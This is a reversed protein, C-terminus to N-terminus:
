LMVFPSSFAGCRESRCARPSVRVSISRGRMPTTLAALSTTGPCMCRSRMASATLAPTRAAPPVGMSTGAMATHSPRAMFWSPMLNERGERSIMASETSIMAVAWGKSPSTRIGLQSLHTGPMSMAASRRFMGAMTTLPPGMSAPSLLVSRFLTKSATPLSRAPRM